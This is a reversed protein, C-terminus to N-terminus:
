SSSSDSTSSSSASSSHDSSSNRSGSGPSASAKASPKCKAKAKPKAKGGAKAATKAKAKSPKTKSEKSPKPKAATTKKSDIKKVVKGSSASDRADLEEDTLVSAPPNDKREQMLVISESPLDASSLPMRLHDRQRQFSGSQNCWHKLLLICQKRADPSNDAFRLFRKCGTLANKKHFRCIAEIGGFPPASRAQKVSFSFSGYRGVGRVLLGDDDDASSRTSHSQLAHKPADSSSSPISAAPGTSSMAFGEELFDDSVDAHQMTSAQSEHQKAKKQESVQAITGTEDALEVDVHLSEKAPRKRKNQLTRRAADVPLMGGFIYEYTEALLGHPIEKLGHSAALREFDLLCLLYFRHVTVGSTFWVLEGGISYSLGKQEKLPKLSWKWGRSRMEAFLRFTSMDSLAPGGLTALCQPSGLERLFDLRQVANKTLLYGGDSVQEAFRHSELCEMSLVFKSPVMFSHQSNPLAGHQVMLELLKSVEGGMLPLIYKVGGSKRWLQLSSLCASIGLSEVLSQMSLTESRGVVISSVVPKQASGRNEFLTVILDNRQFNKLTCPAHVPRKMQSPQLLVPTFLKLTQM